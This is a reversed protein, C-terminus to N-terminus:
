TIYKVIEYKGSPMQYWTMRLGSNNVKPFTPEGNLSVAGEFSGMEFFAEAESGLLMGSWETGDEQLLVYGQTKLTEQITGLPIQEYYNEPVANQVVRNLRARTKADIRTDPPPSSVIPLGQGTIARATDRMKQSASRTDPDGYSYRWKGDPGRWRKRYKAKLFQEPRSVTVYFIM